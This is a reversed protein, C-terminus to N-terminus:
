TAKASVIRKFSSVEFASTRTGLGSGSTLCTAWGMLCRGTHGVPRRSGRAAAADRIAAESATPMVPRCHHDLRVGCTAPGAEEDGGEASSAGDAVGGGSRALGFSRGAQVRFADQFVEERDESEKADAGGLRRANTRPM